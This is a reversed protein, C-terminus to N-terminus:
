RRLREYRETLSPAEDLSELYLRVLPGSAQPDAAVDQYMAPASTQMAGLARNIDGPTLSKTTPIQAALPDLTTIAPEFGTAAAVAAMGEPDIMFPTISAREFTVSSFPAPRPRGFTTPSPSFISAEKSSLSWPIVSLPAYSAPPAQLQGRAALLQSTLNSIVDEDIIGQGQLALRAAGRFATADPDSTLGAAGGWAVRQEIDPLLGIAFDPLLGIAFPSIDTTPEPTSIPRQTRLWQAQAQALPSTPERGVFFGPRPGGALLHQQERPFAYLTFPQDFSSLLQQRRWMARAQPLLSGPARPSIPRQQWMAQPSVPSAPATGLVVEHVFARRQGPPLQMGAQAVQWQAKTPLKLYVGRAAGLVQQRRFKHQGLLALSSSGALLLLALKLVNNRKM